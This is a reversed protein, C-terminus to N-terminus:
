LTTWAQVEDEIVLWEDLEFQFPVGTDKFDHGATQDGLRWIDFSLGADIAKRIDRLIHGATVYVWTEAVEALFGSFILPKKEGNALKQVCSLTVFHPAASAKFYQILDAM